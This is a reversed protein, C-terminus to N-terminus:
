IEMDSTAWARSCVLSQLVENNRPRPRPSHEGTGSARQGDLNTGAVLVVVVLVKVSSLMAAGEERGM